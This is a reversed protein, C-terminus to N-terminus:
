PLRLKRLGGGLPLDLNGAADLLGTLVSSSDASSAQRKLLSEAASHDDRVAKFAEAEADSLAGAEYLAGFPCAAASAAQPLAISAALLAVTVLM